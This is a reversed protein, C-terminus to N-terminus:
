ADDRRTFAALAVYALITLGIAGTVGIAILVIVDIPGGIDSFGSSTIWQVFLIAAIAGVPAMLEARLLRSGELRHERVVVYVFAITIAVAAVVLGWFLLPGFIEEFVALITSFTLDKM